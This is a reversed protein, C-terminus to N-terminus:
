KGRFTPRDRGDPLLQHLALYVHVLQITMVFSHEIWYRCGVNGLYKLPVYREAVFNRSLVNLRLSSCRHSISSGRLTFGM